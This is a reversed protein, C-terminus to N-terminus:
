CSNDYYLPRRSLQTYLVSFQGMVGHSTQSTNATVILAPSRDWRCLSLCVVYYVGGDGVCVVMVWVGGDGVCVGGDGVCM